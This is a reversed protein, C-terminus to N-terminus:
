ASGGGDIPIATGTIHRAADSALFVVLAAIEGPEAVRGNPSEEATRQLYDSVDVDLEAAAEALMPTDVDGPCIANVRVGDRAHDLAM